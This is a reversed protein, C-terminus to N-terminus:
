NYVDNPYVGGLHLFTEKQILIDKREMTPQFTKRKFWFLKGTSQSIPDKHRKVEGLYQCDLSHSLFELYASHVVAVDNAVELILNEGLTLLSEIIKIQEQLNDHMLHVVLFAIVVDFHEKQNLFALDSLDMRKHLYFINNLHGNLQCLDYLMDGHHAYYSTNNAEIMTCSSQPYDHATRFSFYGQAAGLDLVSFPQTYLDLIPKILEYRTDCQDTGIPYIDNGIVIDQYIPGPYKDLFLELPTEANVWSTFFFSLALLIKKM